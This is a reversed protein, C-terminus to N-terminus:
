DNFTGYENLPRHRWRRWIFAQRGHCLNKTRLYKEVFTSHNINTLCKRRIAVYGGGRESWRLRRCGNDTVYRESFCLLDTWTYSKTDQKLWFNRM